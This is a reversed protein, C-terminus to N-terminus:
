NSESSYEKYGLTPLHLAIAIFYFLQEYCNFNPLLSCKLWSVFLCVPVDVSIPCLASLVKWVSRDTHVSTYIRKYKKLCFCNVSYCSLSFVYLYICLTLVKFVEALSREFQWWCNNPCFVTHDTSTCPPSFSIKSKLRYSKSINVNKPLM